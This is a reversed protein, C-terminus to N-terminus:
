FDFSEYVESVIPESGCMAPRFKWKKLAEIFLEAQPGVPREAIGVKSVSGDTMVTVEAELHLKERPQPHLEPMPYSIEKPGKMNACERREIAGPPPELLKTDLPSEQLDTVNASILAQGDKTLEMKHPLRHGRFEAFGGFQRRQVFDKDYGIVKQTESVVDHTSADICIEIHAKGSEPNRAKVCDVSVGREVRQKEGEVVLEGYNVRIHFLDLLEWLRKPTADANRLKYTQEGKQFEIEEFKGISARRWWLDKAQYRIRLHGKVPTGSQVVTFDVDMLFPRDSSDWIAAAQKRASDLLNKAAAQDSSWLAGPSVAVLIAVFMKSIM